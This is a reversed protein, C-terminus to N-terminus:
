RSTALLIGLLSRARDNNPSLALARRVSSEAEPFKRLRLLLWALNSHAVSVYPDLAIARRMEAEADSVRGLHVYYVGLVRHAEAYEADVAVAKELEEVARRADGKQAFETGRDYAKKAAKPVRHRLSEVSVAEVPPKPGPLSTTVSRAFPSWPDRPVTGWTLTREERLNGFEALTSELVEHPSLIRQEQGFVAMALGVAAIVPKM